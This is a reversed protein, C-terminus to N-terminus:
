SGINRNKVAQAASENRSRALSQGTKTFGISDVTLGSAKYGVRTMQDRAMLFRYFLETEYQLFLGM